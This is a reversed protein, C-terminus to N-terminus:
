EGCTWSYRSFDYDFSQIPVYEFGTLCNDMAHRVTQVLLFTAPAIDVLQRQLEQYISIQEERDGTARAADILADIDENQLWEMSAWTGASASHYQVYFMSDPSPYTPGYFVQTMNPTTSVDSAMETIRNWPEPQLTVDFGLPEMTAQFLLAIEEEFQLGAVYAHTIPIPGQGAYRSQAIEARACDLDFTPPELEALFFDGFAAPLPGALADGPYIVERILEYDTACAIARRIHVDDTPPLQTNIKYYFATATPRSEIRFREMRELAEYTENSSFQSTMTLEGSAALARITAEDNTVIFRVGDLAQDHWGMHYDEFRMITMNAGREWSDLMFPGAGAANDTLFTQGLDDEDNAEVVDKNVVFILPVTSLFPSFVEELTFQVTREDVAIVNDASLVDRFLYAPGQDIALLREVSYVVDEATVVTGDQFLAGEKLTFTFETADESVQWSEALQPIIEGDSSVTVLGDYLNVAAMYETYDNIKAPDITGFIQGVNITIVEALAYSSLLTLALLGKTVYKM